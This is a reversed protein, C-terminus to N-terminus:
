ATFLKKNMIVGSTEKKILFVITGMVLTQICIKFELSSLEFTPMHFQLFNGWFHDMDGNCLKLHIDSWIAEKSIDSSVDSNHLTGLLFQSMTACLNRFSNSDRYLFM